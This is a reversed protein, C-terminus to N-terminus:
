VDYQLLVPQIQKHNLAEIVTDYLMDMKAVMSNVKTVYNDQGLPVFYINPINKLIGVNRLNLGLGDNTSVALVVPYENRLTAKIAMLVSTDTIAHALKALTNGTCPAVVLIDYPKHPGIQETQAITTQVEHGTMQELQNVFDKAKGFRTDISSAHHSMIPFVEAGESMLKEIAPFIKKFMCFSGCLAFGIKKGILSNM